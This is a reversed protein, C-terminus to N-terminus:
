SGESLSIGLGRPIRWAAAVALVVWLIDYPSALQPMSSFFTGIVFPSFITVAQAVEAGLEVGVLERFISYFTFYKGVLIGAVAAVVAVVQLPRGRKGSLLNVSFGALLGIGIAMFGIEYEAALVILGWVVGGLVAALAAGVLAKVLSASTVVEQEAAERVHRRVDHVITRAQSRDLGLEVLKDTIEEDSSGGRMENVVMAVLKRGAERDAEEIKDSMMIGVETPPISGSLHVGVLM